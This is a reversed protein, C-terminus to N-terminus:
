YGGCPMDCPRPPGRRVALPYPGYGQGMPPGWTRYPATQGYYYGPNRSYHGFPWWGQLLWFLFAGLLIGAILYAASM